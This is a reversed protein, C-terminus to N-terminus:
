RHYRYLHIAGAAILVVAAAFFLMGDGPNRLASFLNLGGAVFFLIAALLPKRLFDTVKKKM